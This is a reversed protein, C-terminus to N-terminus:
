DCAGKDYQTAELAASGQRRKRRMAITGYLNCKTLHQTVSAGAQANLYARRWQWFRARDGRRKANAAERTLWHLLVTAIPQM